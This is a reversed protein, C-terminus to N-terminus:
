DNNILESIHKRFTVYENLKNKKYFIRIQQLWENKESRSLKNFTYKFKDIQLSLPKNNNKKAIMVLGSSTLFNSINLKNLLYQPTFLIYAIIMILFKNKIGLGRMIIDTNISSYNDWCIIKFGNFFSYQTLKNKTFFRLHHNEGFPYGRLMYFLKYMISGTNPTSIILHGNDKLIYNIFNLLEDTNFIHEITELCVVLDFKDKLNIYNGNNINELDINITHIKQNQLTKINEESYDVATVSSLNYKNDLINLMEGKGAGVDIVNKVPTNNKDLLKIAKKFWIKEYNITRSKAVMEDHSKKM